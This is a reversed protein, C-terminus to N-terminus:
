GFALNVPVCPTLSLVDLATVVSLWPTEGAAPGGGSAPRRTQAQGSATGPM